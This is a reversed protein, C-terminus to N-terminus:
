CDPLASGAPPEPPLVRTETDGPRILDLRDLERMIHGETEGYFLVLRGELAPSLSTLSFSIPLGQKLRQVNDATIGVGIVHRNLKDKGLFKIM